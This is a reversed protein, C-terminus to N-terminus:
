DEIIIGEKSIYVKPPRPDDLRTQINLNPNQQLLQIAKDSTIEDKEYYFTADRKAMAVVHDIPQDPGPPPPPPPPLQTNKSGIIYPDSSSSNKALRSKQYEKNIRTIFEDSVNETQVKLGYLEFDEKKWNKTHEDLAIAFSAVSVKKGNLYISEQNVYLIIGNKFKKLVKDDVGHFPPPPPPPLQQLGTNTVNSTKQSSPPVPPAPPAPNQRNGEYLKNSNNTKAGKSINVIPNSNKFTTTEIDLSNDKKVLKLAESYSIRKNELLFAANENGMRIIHDVPSTSVLPPPPPFCEPFPEAAEKQTPTMKKYIFELRNLDKLKIIRRKIDVANYKKALKNYEAIEEKTAKDQLIGSAESFESGLICCPFAESNQRQELTMKAYSIELKQLHDNRVIRKEVPIQNYKKALKNYEAIDEKTAKEQSSVPAVAGGPIEFRQVGNAVLIAKVDIVFGMPIDGNSVIKATLKENKYNAVIGKFVVALNEISAVKNEIRITRDKDVEVLITKESTEKIETKQTSFGYIMIALLPLLILTKLWAARKSTQTKMVTFRKKVSSYNISHAMAPVQASSSFALLIKQYSSLEGGQQLVARDALFEHNLRISRKIFYILPNFWFVIQLVEIFIVDLSHRQKAHTAEHLLVEKPIENNEFATKNLFIYNFFTHPTASIRLLVHIIHQRKYQPNNRIKQIISFLNKCFKATFFLVGIGYITWLIYPLYNISAEPTESLTTLGETMMVPVFVTEVVEIYETFTIFPITFAAVLSGLLYFRKVTHLNEKELFLKYFAFFIALCGASKLLYLEM